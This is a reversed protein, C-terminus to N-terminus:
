MYPHTGAKVTTNGGERRKVRALIQHPVIRHAQKRTAEYEYTKICTEPASLPLPVSSRSSEVVYQRDCIYKDRWSAWSWGSSVIGINEPLNM